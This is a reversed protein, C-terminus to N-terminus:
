EDEQNLFPIPREPDQRSPLELDIGRPMNEFLWQGMHKRGEPQSQRQPQERAYWTEAPVVVFSRDADIHQPGGEAALQLIDSLRSQAEAVTWSRRHDPQTM